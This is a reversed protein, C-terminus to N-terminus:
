IVDQNYIVCLFYQKHHFNHTAIVTAYNKFVYLKCLLNLEKQKVKNQNDYNYVYHLTNWIEIISIKYNFILLKFIM